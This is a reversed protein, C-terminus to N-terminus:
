RNEGRMEKVFDVDEKIPNFDCKVTSIFEYFKPMEQKLTLLRPDYKMFFDFSNLRLKEFLLSHGGRLKSNKGIESLYINTVTIAFFEELNEYSDNTSNVCAKGQLMRAKHFLEHVLTDDAGFFPEIQIFTGSATNYDGPLYELPSTGSRACIPKSGKVTPHGNNPNAQADVLRLSKQPPKITLTFGSNKVEYLVYMGVRTRSVSKLLSIVETEYLHKKPFGDGNVMIFDGYKLM